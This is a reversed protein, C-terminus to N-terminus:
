SQVMRLSYILQRFPIYVDVEPGGENRVISSRNQKTNHM